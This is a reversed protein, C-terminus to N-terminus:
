NLSDSSNESIEKARTMLKQLRALDRWIVLSLLLAVVFLGGVLWDYITQPGSYLFVLIAAPYLSSVVIVMATLRFRLDDLKITIKYM